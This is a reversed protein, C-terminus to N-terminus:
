SESRVAAPKWSFDAENVLRDLKKFEVRAADLVLPMTVSSTQEAAVFAANLAVNLISGGTTQPTLTRTMTDPNYQFVVVSALPNFPDLGILAGKLLRPTSSLTM